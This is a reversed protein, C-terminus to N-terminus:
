SLYEIGRANPDIYLPQKIENYMRYGVVNAVGMLNGGYMVFLKVIGKEYAAVIDDATVETGTNWDQGTRYERYNSM